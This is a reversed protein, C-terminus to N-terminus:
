CRKIGGVYLHIKPFIDKASAESARFARRIAKLFLFAPSATSSSPYTIM